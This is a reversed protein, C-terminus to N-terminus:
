DALANIRALLGPPWTAAFDSGQYQAQVHARFAAVDPTYIELGEARLSDILRAEDDLQKLRAYAAAADGTRGLAELARGRWYAARSLSVRGAELPERLAELARRDFEPLEDLFLVGRHALSIEGPQPRVGGGILAIRKAEM